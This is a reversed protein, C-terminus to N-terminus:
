GWQQSPLADELADFNQPHDRSLKVPANPTPPERRKQKRYQRHLRWFWLFFEVGV